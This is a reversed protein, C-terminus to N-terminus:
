VPGLLDQNRPTGARAPPLALDLSLAGSSSTSTAGALTCAAPSSGRGPAQASTAPAPSRTGPSRRASAAGTTNAAYVLWGEAALEEGLACEPSGQSPGLPTDTGAVLIPYGDRVALFLVVRSTDAEAEVEGVAMIVRNWLDAAPVEDLNVTESHGGQPM